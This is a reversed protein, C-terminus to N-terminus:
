SFRVPSAEIRRFAASGRLVTYYSHSNHFTQCDDLTSPQIETLNGLCASIKVTIRCARCIWSVMPRFLKALQDPPKGMHVTFLPHVVDLRPCSEGHFLWDSLRCPYISFTRAQHPWYLMGIRCFLKSEIRAVSDIKEIQNSLRIFKGSTCQYEFLLNPTIKTTHM